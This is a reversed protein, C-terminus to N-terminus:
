RALLEVASWADRHGQELAYPPAPPYTGGGLRAVLDRALDRVGTLSAALRADRAGLTPLLRDLDSAAWALEFSAHGELERVRTPNGLWSGRQIELSRLHELGRGLHTAAGRAFDIPPSIPQM